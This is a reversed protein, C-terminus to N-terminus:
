TKILKCTELSVGICQCHFWNNCEDCAVMAEGDYEDASQKCICFFLEEKNKKSQLIISPSQGPCVKTTAENVQTVNIDVDKKSVRHKNNLQKIQSVNIADSHVHIHPSSATQTISSLFQKKTLPLRGCSQVGRELHPLKSLNKIEPIIIAVAQGSRALLDINSKSMHHINNVRNLMTRIESASSAIYFEQRPNIDGLWVENETKNCALKEIDPIIKGYYAIVVGLTPM